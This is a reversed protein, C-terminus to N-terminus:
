RYGRAAFGEKIEIQNYTKVIKIISWDTGVEYAIGSAVLVNGGFYDTQFIDFRMGKEIEQAMGQDVKVFNKRPSIKIIASDVAYEKFSEIKRDEQTKGDNSWTYNLTFESGSDTSVGGNVWAYEVGLKWSSANYALGLYPKMYSRNISNYLATNGTSMRPKNIEDDTYQDTGLSSIGGAGFYFWWTELAWTVNLDYNLEASLENPPIVYYLSSNFFNSRSFQYSLGGGLKIEKGDDGLIIEDVPVTQTRDYVDNTYFTGRVQADLAYRWRDSEPFSYKLGILASELGSNNAQNTTTSSVLDTSGNERYRLGGRWELRDSQGYRLIGEYDTQSFSEGSEFPTEAGTYDYNGTSTFASARFDFEMAKASVSSGSPHYVIAHANLAFLFLGFILRM